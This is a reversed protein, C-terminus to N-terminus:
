AKIKYREITSEVIKSLFDGPSYGKIMAMYGMYGYHSRDKDKPDLMTLGAFTNIELFYPVNNEDLIGADLKMPCIITEKDLMKHEYTNTKSDNLVVELIPLVEINDNDYGIIGVTMERGKIYEEIIAIQGIGETIKKVVNPLDEYSEIINTDDIGASGRGEVPKVFLPYKFNIEPIDDSTKALVFKPTPIGYYALIIKRTAKDMGVILESSGTFPINFTELFFLEETSSANFVMDIEKEKIENYLELPDHKWEILETTYGASKLAESHLSAENYSDDKVNDLTLKKQFEVNRFRRWFVGIKM